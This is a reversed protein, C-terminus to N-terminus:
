LLYSAFAKVLYYYLKSYIIEFRNLVDNIVLIDIAIKAALLTSKLLTPPTMHMACKSQAVCDLNRLIFTRKKGGLRYEWFESNVFFTKKWTQVLLVFYILLINNNAVNCQEM